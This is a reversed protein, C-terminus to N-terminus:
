SWWEAWDLLYRSPESTKKSPPFYNTFLMVHGPRSLFPIYSWELFGTVEVLWSLLALLFCPSCQNGKSGFSTSYYDAINISQKVQRLRTLAEKHSNHINICSLSINYIKKRVMKLLFDTILCKM